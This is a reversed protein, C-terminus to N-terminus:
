LAPGAANDDDVDPLFDKTSDETKDEKDLASALERLNNVGSMLQRLSVEATSAALRMDNALSRIRNDASNINRCGSNNTEMTAKLEQNEKRLMMVKICLSDINRKLAEIRNEANIARKTSRKLNDEAQQMEKEINASEVLNLQRISLLESELTEIRMSDDNAQRRAIQLESRLRENEMFLWHNISDNSGSCNPREAISIGRTRISADSLFDPLLKTTNQIGESLPQYMPVNANSNSEACGPIPLNFPFGLSEPVDASEGDIVDLKPFDSCSQHSPNKIFDKDLHNTLDFSIDKTGDATKNCQGNLHRIHRKEVSNLAFDPLNDVEINGINASAKDGLYCQEIVLHDQVFDPLETPNRPYKGTDHNESPEPTRSQPEYFKPRAGTFQHNTQNDNKLFQKLSFLSEERRASNKLSIEKIIFLSPLKM